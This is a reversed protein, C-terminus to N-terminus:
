AQLGTVNKEYSLDEFRLGLDRAYAYAELVEQAEPRRSLARYRGDYAPSFPDCAYEPRYQDMVNVLAQPANAAIWDLVPKTCCGVHGPTILHRIVLDEGWDYVKKHNRAVTEWYRPTRSLFVACRDNGFKFDSLWVDVLPRLLRMTEDSMFFNSNWLLPVNFEGEYVGVAAPRRFPWAAGPNVSQVYALDEPNPPTGLSRIAELITHLHVTPEGGVWNINHCGEKRLQWAMAAVERPNAPIGNEKDHSIDSNQCYVCRMNCSTFFVTGSGHTGRFVLEEGHHAFYSSVRSDGALQCTGHKTGARRDVKCNWRCFTCHTLMRQGLEWSLDLLSPTALPLQSLRVDRSRIAKRAELFRATARAHEAWLEEVTGTGLDVECPIRRSILYKAPLRDEAVALYWPLRDGVRDWIWLQGFTRAM